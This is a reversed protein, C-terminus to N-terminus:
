SANPACVLTSHINLCLGSPSSPLATPRKSVRLPKSIITSYFRCYGCEDDRSRPDAVQCLRIAFLACGSPALIHSRDTTQIRPCFSISSFYFLLEVRHMPLGSWPGTNINRHHVHHVTKFLFPLHIGYFYFSQWFRILFFFAGSPAKIM